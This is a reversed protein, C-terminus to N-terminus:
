DRIGYLFHVEAMFSEGEISVLMQGKDEDAKRDTKLAPHEWTVVHYGLCHLSMMSTVCYMPGEVWMMSPGGGCYECFRGGQKQHRKSIKCVYQSWFMQENISVQNIDPLPDLHARLTQSTFSLVRAGFKDLNKAIELFLETPLLELPSMIAHALPSSMSISSQLLDLSSQLSRTLSKLNSADGNATDKPAKWHMTSSM